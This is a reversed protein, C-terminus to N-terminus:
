GGIEAVSRDILDLEIFGTGTVGDPNIELFSEWGSVEEQSNIPVTKLAGDLAAQRYTLQNAGDNNIIRAARIYAGFETLSDIRVQSTTFPITTTYFSLSQDNVGKLIAKNVYSM